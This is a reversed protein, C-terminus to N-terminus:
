EDMGEEEGELVLKRRKGLTEGEKVYGRKTKGRLAEVEDEEEQAWELVLHRGYLHTAGLSEFANKAEQKTLFDIFAFGRHQGDFKRPLRVTKLHGFTSFLQRIDKKTAEFPVNRVVLKTGTVKIEDPGRKRGAGSSTSSKNTANSFKLQLAHDDLKFGQMAKMCRIADEKKEFELFGFGMSLTGGTKRDPKTAVRVSRLGGIGEFARRLGEEKTDFNLNKVFLTAVPMMDTDEEPVAADGGAPTADGEGGAGEGEAGGAGGGVARGGEVERKTRREEEEEKNFEKKFTGVPAWELFLPLHGFKTFALRRFATKAENHHLYEVLAITKAPPLVVRGLEGFKAFLATLDDEATRAPLNKVLLITNSRTKRNTFASLDIGEAELYQKTENIIHTEALALRVAMNESEADLIDAKKVNLKKAMAEAVADSNMFLSNWSFENGAEKKRMKEKKRKYSGGDEGEGEEDEDPGRPREKGPLIELIRGQFISGDLATYAKVAHEPLLFLIFAFGKPKKTLKDIPIHVESLPGFKEFLKHLDEMTCTYTLNRVYLRGTDAILDAPPVEGNTLDSTIPAATLSPKPAPTEAILKLRDASIANSAPKTTNASTNQPATNIEESSEATEDVEIDEAEEDGEAEADGMEVDEDLKKMRMRMYELDSMGSDFVASDQKVDGEADMANNTDARGDAEDDKGEEELDKTAPLDEYDDDSDGGFVVKTRAVLLGDGGPKRNPVASVVAKVKGGEAVAPSESPKAGRKDRAALVDDNAWTRGQAAKRPRMVEMFEKLKADEKEKEADVEAGYLNAVLNQKREVEKQTEERSLRIREQREQRKRIAEAEADAKRQHASSGAKAVEVVIKSTDVFTGNFYKLAAKAEKETKYGVYGFRRFVGDHTKALKVDTVEGQTGFHEKFREANYYKPLNKVILRSEVVAVKCRFTPQM